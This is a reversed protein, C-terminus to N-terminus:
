VSDIASQYASITKSLGDILSECTLAHGISVEKIQPIAALLTALNKQNLDHGANLNYGLALCKDACKKYVSLIESQAPTSFAKAYSETYLEIRDAGIRSLSKEDDNSFDYPDLFLSVVSGYSKLKKVVDILFTEHKSFKWGANSTLVHPPDPVLTAQTPRVKAVLKLFDESPYGEINFEIKKSSNYKEILGKLDFVDQFKIHREDPRPHVTLGLVGCDLIYRSTEVLNPLNGGRSNRLTAIKNVNVSLLTKKSM